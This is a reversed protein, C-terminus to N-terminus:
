CISFDAPPFQIKMFAILNRITCHENTTIVDGLMFSEQGTFPLFASQM